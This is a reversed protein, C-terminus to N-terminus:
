YVQYDTAPAHLEILKRASKEQRPYRSSMIWVPTSRKQTPLYVLVQSLENKKGPSGVYEGAIRLTQNVKVGFHVDKSTITLEDFTGSPEVASLTLKFEGTETKALESVTYAGTITKEKQAPQTKENALIESNWLFSFSVTMFIRLLFSIQDKM